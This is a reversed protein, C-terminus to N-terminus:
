RLRAMLRPDRLPNWYATARIDGGSCSVRCTRASYDGSGVPSAISPVLGAGYHTTISAKPLAYVMGMGGNVTSKVQPGDPVAHGNAGNPRWRYENAGFTIRDVNGKFCGAIPIMAPLGRTVGSRYFLDFGVQDGSGGTM